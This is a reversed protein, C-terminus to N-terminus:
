DIGIDLLFCVHYASIVNKSCYLFNLEPYELM